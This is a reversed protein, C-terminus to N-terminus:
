ANPLCGKDNLVFEIKSLVMSVTVASMCENKCDLAEDPFSACGDRCGLDAFVPYWKEVGFPAAREPWEPGYIVVTPCGVAAAVFVPASDNSILLKCRKLVPGLQSFTTKGSLDIIKGAKDSSAIEKNLGTERDSGLLAIKLNPYKERIKRVLVTWNNIIWRRSAWPRYREPGTGCFLALPEGSERGLVEDAKVADEETWFVQIKGDEASAGINLKGLLRLYTQQRNARDSFSVETWDQLFAAKNKDTILGARYKIGALWSLFGYFPDSGLCVALDYHRRRLMFSLRLVALPKKFNLHGHCDASIISSIHPNHTLAPAAVDSVWYDIVAEPWNGRLAKVIPTTQLVDGLFGYRMVLIRKVKEKGIRKDRKSVILPIIKWLVENRM